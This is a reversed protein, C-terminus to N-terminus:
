GLRGELIAIRRDRGTQAKKIARIVRDAEKRLRTLHKLAGTMAAKSERKLTALERRRERNMATEISKSPKM